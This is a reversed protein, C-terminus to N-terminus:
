GGVQDSDIIPQAAGTTTFQGLYGLADADWYFAGLGLGDSQSAMFSLLDRQYTAQGLPTVPYGPLADPYNSYAPVDIGYGQQPQQPLQDEAILVDMHFRAVLNRVNAEMASMPGHYWPYYSLGIVDFDVHAALMHSVFDTAAANDGGRDIHLQVLLPHGAPNGAQAGAIGAKVLTTLSHWDATGTSEDFLLHGSDQVDQVTSGAAHAFRLPQALTIVGSGVSAVHDIDTSADTVGAISNGTPQSGIFLTDGPQIGAADAVPIETAGAPTVSGTAGALTTYQWLMGQTIENGIAVESVPTGQAAFAQLVSATYDHVSRALEPLTEGAWAAPVNQHGPDAWTDSYHLDLLVKMGMAQIQRAMQLDNQLDPCTAATCGPPESPDGFNGTLPDLWLRLRVYNLGGTRFISLIPEPTGNLTFPGTDALLTSLDAGRQLGAAAPDDPSYVRLEQVCVDEERSAHFTLTIYRAPITAAPGAGPAAFLDNEGTAIAGGGLPHEAPDTIGTTVSYAAGDGAQQGSFTIGTGSVAEVQGLDITVRHVGLTGPCWRSTGDGDDVARLTTGAATGSPTSAPAGIAVNLGVPMNPLTAAPNPDAPPGNPIPLTTGDGAAAPAGAGYLTAGSGIRFSDLAPQPTGTPSLWGLPGTTQPVTYEVGRGLGDPLSALLSVLDREYSAQGAPTLLYGPLTAPYPVADSYIGYGAIDAYPFATGTLVIPTRMRAALQDLNARLSSMPGQLWPEYGLGIVDPRIGAARLHGFFDETSAPDAATDTDLEVPPSATGPRGARVGAIAARLLGTLGTWNATGAPGVILRGAPWLFGQTIENGIVVRALPIDQAAFAALVSRTYHRVTEALQARSQGRWAAPTPQSSSSTPTDAYDIELVVGMGLARARRALGLDDALDACTTECGSPNVLLPLRVENVGGARLESLRPASAATGLAAGLALQPDHVADTSFVRLEQVCINQERPVEYTLTVYRAPVSAAAGAFLYLPGQSIPNQDGAAQGPFPTQGPATTGTTISYFSGDSGEEGSFTVGTGSVDRVQGLDLTVQHIGVTSPCWRSTGDGDDVNALRSGPAAGANAQVPAGIAINLGDPLSPLPGPPADALAPGAGFGLALAAGTVALAGSVAQWVTRRM